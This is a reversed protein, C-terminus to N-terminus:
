PFAASKIRYSINILQLQAAVRHCYNLVYKCVFLACFSVFCVICLVFSSHPGHGMKAPTVRANAECSLFFCPFFGWDPYLSFKQYYISVHFNLEEPIHHRLTQCFNSRREFFSAVEMKLNSADTRPSCLCQPHRSCAGWTSLWGILVSDVASAQFTWCRQAVSM